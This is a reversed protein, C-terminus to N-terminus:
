KTSCSSENCNINDSNGKGMQISYNYLFLKLKIVKDFQDADNKETSLKLIFEELKRNANM